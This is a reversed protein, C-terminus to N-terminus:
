LTQLVNRLKFKESKKRLNESIQPQEKSLKYLIYKINNQINRIKDNRDSLNEEHLIPNGDKDMKWDGCPEILTGDVREYLEKLLENMEAFTIKSIGSQFKVHFENRNKDTKAILHNEPHQPNFHVLKHFKELVVPDMYKYSFGNKLEDPLYDLNEIGIYINYNNIQTQIQSITNHNSHDLTIIMTGNRECVKNKKHRSKSAKDLFKKHCLECQLSDLGNCKEEHNILRQKSSLEKKCKSCQFNM